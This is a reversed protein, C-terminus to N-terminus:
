VIKKPFHFFFLFSFNKLELIAVNRALFFRLLLGIINSIYCSNKIIRAIKRLFMERDILKFLM